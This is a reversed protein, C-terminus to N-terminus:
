GGINNENYLDLYRKACREMSFHSDYYTRINQRDFKINLFFVYGSIFFYVPVSQDLFMGSLLCVLGELTTNGELEIYAGPYVVHIAIVVVALPFRLLDLSQSRLNNRDM